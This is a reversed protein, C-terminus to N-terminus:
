RNQSMDWYLIYTGIYFLQGYKQCFESFAMAISIVFLSAVEWQRHEGYEGYCNTRQMTQIVHGEFGSFQLLSIELLPKVSIGIILIPLSM